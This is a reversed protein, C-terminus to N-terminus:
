EDHDHSDCCDVEPLAKNKGSMRIWMGWLVPVMIWHFCLLLSAPVGAYFSPHVHNGLFVFLLPFVVDEILEWGVIIIVLAIGHQRMTDKISKWSLHKFKHSLREKIWKIM